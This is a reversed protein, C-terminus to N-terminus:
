PEFRYGVGSVTRIHRPQAPTRELKRRLAVVHMDISRAGARRRTDSVERLLEARPVVQPARRVLASLLDFERPTLDVWRGERRVIRAAIDIELDATTVRHPSSAPRTHLGYSDAEIAIALTLFGAGSLADAVARRTASDQAVIFAVADSPMQELSARADDSPAYVPLCAM